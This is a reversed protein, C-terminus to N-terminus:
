GKTPAAKGDKELMKLIQETAREAGASADVAFLLGRSRYYDLLPATQAQYTKFRVAISKPNDDERTILAAGCKDCLGEVKPPLTYVNFITECAPCIRRGSLRRIIVDEALQLEFVGELNHGRCSLFRDLIEAQSITRPYGDLIFGEAADGLDLRAEAMAIVLEDPVLEGKDIYARAREGLQTKEKMQARLLDGTAIHVAKTRAVLVSAVTGKGAGPPGFLVIRM